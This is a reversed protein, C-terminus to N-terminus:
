RSAPTGDGFSVFPLNGRTVLKELLLPIEGLRSTDVIDGLADWHEGEIKQLLSHMIPLLRGPTRGRYVVALYVRDGRAIAVREDGLELGELNREREDSFSQKAFNIIATLMGTVLDTDIEGPGRRSVSSVLLGDNTVLFAWELKRRRYLVFGAAFAVLLPVPAIYLWFPVQELIGPKPLVVVVTLTTESTLNGDSVEVPLAYTGDATFNVLVGRGIGFAHADTSTVSLQTLNTDIDFLYPTLDLYATTANVYQTPVVRFGPPDDVWLVRVWVSDEALAGEPDVARFTVREVGWWNFAAGLTVNTRNDITVTVNRNGSSYYLVSGDPDSFYESLNYAHVLTTDELFSRDPLKMRVVPPWDDGVTVRLDRSAGYFGDSVSVTVRVTTNNYAFPYLFTILQGSVTVHSDSVTVNLESTATDPDTLYPDLNFSYPADYHVRLDPLAAIAPPADRHVVTVTITDEQLAGSPATARFTVSEAGWWGGPATVDVSDNSHILVSVHSYGFSYYLAHHDPDAFHDALNFVNQLTEGEWLTLDPLPSTVVPPGDTSVKIIVVRSVTYLGDSVSLTVFRWEDLYAGSYLFTVNLGVASAHVTDNTALVLQARPTDSDDIYPGFDFTFPTGAQVVLVSPPDFGPPQDVYTVNIWATQRDWHGQPDTLWYTVHADGWADPQPYITLRHNGPENLGTIQLVSADFGTVNWRLQSLATDPDSAYPGLDISWPPDNEAAVQDPITGVIKPPLPPAGFTYTASLRPRNGPVASDSSYFAHLPGSPENAETLFLGLNPYAGEVWDQVMRTVNWSFWGVSGTANVEPQLFDGGTSVWARIGDRYDWSVGPAPYVQAPGAVVQLFASGNPSNGDWARNTRNLNYGFIRWDHGLGPTAFAQVGNGTPVIVDLNGDGSLDAIAATTMLQQGSRINSMVPPAITWTRVVAGTSNFVYVTPGEVFVVDPSGTRSLDGVSPTGGPVTGANYSWVTAGTGADLAYLVGAQNGALDVLRGVGRLDALTQGSLTYSGTAHSWMITGNSAYLAFEFGNNSADGSVVGYVGDGLFDGYAVTSELFAAQKPANAWIPTGGMTYAHVNGDDSAFLIEAQGDANIDALTATYADQAVPYTAVPLGNTGNLIVMQKMNGGIIVDLVGDGNVDAFTPVAYLVPVNTNRWLLDGRSDFAVVSPDNTVAVIDLTGNRRLDVVQPPFPITSGTTAAQASWIPRGTDNAAYVRGDNGGYVVDLRGDGDLDAVSVGTAGGGSITAATWAPNSSWTVQRYAPVATGNTGYTVNYWRSQYGGLTVDFAVTAGTVRGLSMTYGYVQSPVETSGDWVRLDRQPDGISGAPFALTALVPELVRPMGATERVLLPVRTWSRNGTGETWPAAARRVQVTGSTGAYAEVDLTANLLTANSPIAALDFSLLSRDWSANTTDRGVWLTGNDGFNRMPSSSIISADTGNEPGPQLVLTQSAAAVGVVPGRGPVAKPSLALLCLTLVLVAFGRSPVTLGLRGM